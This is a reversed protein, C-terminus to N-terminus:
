SEKDGREDGDRRRHRFRLTIAIRGFIDPILDSFQRCRLERPENLCDLRDLFSRGIIPGRRDIVIENTHM